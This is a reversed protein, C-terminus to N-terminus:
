NRQIFCFLFLVACYTAAHNNLICFIILCFHWALGKNNLLSEDVKQQTELYSPLVTVTPFWLCNMGRMGTNLYQTEMSSVLDFFIELPFAYFLNYAQLNLKFSTHSSPSPSSSTGQLVDARDVGWSTRAQHGSFWSPSPLLVTGLHTM